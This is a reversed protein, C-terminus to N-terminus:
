LVLTISNLWGMLLGPLFFLFVVVLVLILSMFNEPMTPKAVQPSGATATKRFFAYYPIKLYFFLSVATNLLGLVLVWLIITRGTETYAQWAGSFIFLKAMFGSTPPIGALSIMGVLLLISSAPYKKGLGSFDTIRVVGAHEFLQLFLFVLYNMGLYVFAYFLLFQVGQISFCVVGVLLFGAQAISSYAMLRKPYKQWLASFNGVTITAMVVMALVVQWSYDSQGFLNIGLIFKSLAGVGAVKPVVSLFAVVPTPAAEYVDPAWLHMPVAAMKFLYGALSFIGAILLLPTQHQILHELFTTSSFDLTGSLGYLISFGYLMIASAVAGYLFYKLSGESSRASGAMGSLIYSSISLLELSIFVMLLNMSMVLFHAGLIATMLLVYYESNRLKPQLSAGRYSMLVTFIGALDFIVKLFSSFDDFQIVGGFLRVHIGLHGETLELFICFSLLVISTSIFLALRGPRKVVLGMVVLIITGLVLACEPLILRLSESIVSLKSTLLENM